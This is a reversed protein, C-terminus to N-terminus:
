IKPYNCCIKSTRINLFKVAFNASITVHRVKFYGLIISKESSLCFFLYPPFKHIIQRTEGYFHPYENSDGRSSELSYGCCINKHLIM